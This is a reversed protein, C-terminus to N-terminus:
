GSRASLGGTVQEVGFYAQALGIRFGIAELALEDDARLLIEREWGQETKRYHEIRMQEQNVLAIHRLPPLGKYFRLKEGRDTDM